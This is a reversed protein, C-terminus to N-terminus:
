MAATEKPVALTTVKALKVTGNAHKFNWNNSSMKPNYATEIVLQQVEGPQLLGEIAARGTNAISGDKAYWTETVQLRAIPALSANKVKITTQVLNKGQLARTSPQTFEVLAEGRVPPVFKKGGLVSKMPPAQPPAQAALGAACLVTTVIAAVSVRARTM